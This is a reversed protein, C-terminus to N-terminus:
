FYYKLGLGTTNIFTSFGTGTWLYFSTEFLISIDRIRFSYNFIYFYGTDIKYEAGGAFSLHMCYHIDKEIEYKYGSYFKSYLGIGPGAKFYPSLNKINILNFMEFNFYFTVPLLTYYLYDKYPDGTYIGKIWTFIGLEIENNVPIIKNKINLQGWRKWIIGLSLSNVWRTDMRDGAKAMPIFYTYKWKITYSSPVKELPNKWEIKEEPFWLKGSLISRAIGEAVIDTKGYIESTWIIKKSKSEVFYIRVKIFSDEFKKDPYFQYIKGYLFYKTSKPRGTLIEISDNDKREDYEPVDEGRVTSLAFGSSTKLIKTGDVAEIKDFASFNKLLLKHFKKSINVYDLLKKNESNIYKGDFPFICISECLYKTKLSTNYNIVGARAGIILLFSILTSMVIKKMNM